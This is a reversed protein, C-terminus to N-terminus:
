ELKLERRIQFKTIRKRLTARTMGLLRAARLQNGETEVLAQRVLEREVVAIVATAPHRRAWAFLARALVVPDV